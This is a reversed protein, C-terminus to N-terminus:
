SVNILESPASISLNKANTATQNNGIANIIVMKLKGLASALARWSSGPGFTIAKGCRSVGADGDLDFQSFHKLDSANKEVFRIFCM